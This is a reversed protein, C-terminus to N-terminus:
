PSNLIRLNANPAKDIDDEEPAVEYDIFTDATHGGIKFIRGQFAIFEERAAQVIAMSDSSTLVRLIRRAEPQGYALHERLIRTFDIKGSDNRPLAHIVFIGWGWRRKNSWTGRFGLLQDRLPDFDAPEMEGFAFAVYLDNAGEKKLAYIRNPEGACGLVCAVTRGVADAARDLLRLQEAIAFGRAGTADAIEKGNLFRPLYVKGIIPPEGFSLMWGVAKVAADAATFGMFIASATRVGSLSFPSGAIVAAGAMGAAHNFTHDSTWTPAQGAVKELLKRQERESLLSRGLYAAKSLEEPTNHIRQTRPIQIIPKPATGCCSLALATMAALVKKWCASM